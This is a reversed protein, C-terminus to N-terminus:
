SMGAVFACQATKLAQNHALSKGFLTSGGAFNLATVGRLGDADTVNISHRLNSSKGDLGRARPAM